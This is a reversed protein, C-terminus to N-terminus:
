RARGKAGEIGVPLEARPGGKTKKQKLFSCCCRFHQHQDNKQLWGSFPAFTTEAAEAFAGAAAEPLSKQLNNNLV